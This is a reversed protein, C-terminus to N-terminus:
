LVHHALYLSEAVTSSQRRSATPTNFGTVAKAVAVSAETSLPLAPSQASADPADLWPAVEVYGPSSLSDTRDFVMSAVTTADTTGWFNRPAVVRGTSAWEPISLVPAGPNLFSNWEVFVSHGNFAGWNEIAPKEFSNSTQGSFFTNSTLYVDAVHVGMSIPAADIFANRAITCDARPYWLYMADTTHTIVSDTLTWSGYMSGGGGQLSGGDVDAHSLEITFTELTSPVAMFGVGRLHVDRLVIPADTSGTGRLM